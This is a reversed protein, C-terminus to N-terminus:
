SFELVFEYADYYDYKLIYKEYMHLHIFTETKGTYLSKWRDLIISVGTEDKGTISNILKVSKTASGDLTEDLNLALNITSGNHNKLMPIASAISYSIYEPSIISYSLRLDYWPMHVTTPLFLEAIYQPEPLHILCAASSWTYIDNNEVDIYKIRRASLSKLIDTVAGDYSTVTTDHFLMTIVDDKNLAISTIIKEPDNDPSLSLSDNNITIKIKVSEPIQWASYVYRKSEGSSTNKIYIAIDNSAIGITSLPDDSFATYRFLNDVVDSYIMMLSQNYDTMSWVRQTLDTGTKFSYGTLNSNYGNITFLCTDLTENENELETFGARIFTNRMGENSSLDWDHTIYETGNEDLLTFWYFKYSRISNTLLARTVRPAKMLYFLTNETHILGPEILYIDGGVMQKSFAFLTCPTVGKEIIGSKNCDFVVNYIDENSVVGTINNAMIPTGDHTLYFRADTVRVKRPDYTVTDVKPHFTYIRKFSDYTFNGPIIIGKNNNNTNNDIISVSRSAVEIGQLCLEVQTYFNLPIKYLEYDIELNAVRVRSYENFLEQLKHLSLRSSINATSSVVTDLTPTRKIAEDANGFDAGRLDIVITNNLTPENYYKMKLASMILNYTRAHDALKDYPNPMISLFHNLATLKADLNQLSALQLFPIIEGETNAPNMITAYHKKFDIKISSSKSLPGKIIYSIQESYKPLAWEYYLEHGKILQFDNSDHHKMIYEILCLTYIYVSYQRHRQESVAEKSFLYEFYLPANQYLRQLNKYFRPSFYDDMRNKIVIDDPIVRADDIVKKYIFKNSLFSYRSIISNFEKPDTYSQKIPENQVIQLFTVNDRTIETFKNAQMQTLSGQFYVTEKDPGVATSVSSM